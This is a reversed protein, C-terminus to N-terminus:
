AQTYVPHDYESDGPAGGLDGAALDQMVADNEADPEDDSEVDENEVFHDNDHQCQLTVDALIRLATTAETTNM